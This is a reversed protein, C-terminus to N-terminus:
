NALASAHCALPRRNSGSVRWLIYGAEAPNKQQLFELSIGKNKQNTIKRTEEPKLEEKKPHDKKNYNVSSNTTGFVSNSNAHIRANANAINNARLIVNINQQQNVINLNHGQQAFLYNTILFLILLLIPKFITKM